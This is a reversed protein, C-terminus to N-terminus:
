PKQIEGSAGLSWRCEDCVVECSVKQIAGARKISMDFMFNGKGCKPCPEPLKIKNM